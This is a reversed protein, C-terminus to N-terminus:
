INALLHIALQNGNKASKELWYRGLKEDKPLILGYFYMRGVLFQAESHNLSAAKLLYNAAKADELIGIDLKLYTVGLNFLYDVNDPNGYVAKEFYDKAIKYNQDIGYGNVYLIGLNYFADYLNEGQNVQSFYFRAKEYDKSVSSDDMCMAGLNYLSKQHGNVAAKEFYHIAKLYNRDVGLGDLYMIALNFQAPAFDQSASKEFLEKALALNKEVGEGSFYMVGLTFQSEKHNEKVLIKLCNLASAYNPSDSNLLTQVQIYKDSTTKNVCYSEASLNTLKYNNNVKIPSCALNSLLLLILSTNKISCKFKM